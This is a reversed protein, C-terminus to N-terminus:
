FGTWDIKGLTIIVDFRYMLINWGIRICFELHNMCGGENLWQKIINSNRPNPCHGAGSRDLSNIGDRDDIVTNFDGGIIFNGNSETCIEKIRTFFDPDNRNPGYV